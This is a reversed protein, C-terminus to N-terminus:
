NNKHRQFKLSKRNTFLHCKEGYLYHRRIKLAFMIAALELNHTLYNKEHPKLQRPAYAIVKGDQILICGLDNLLADSYDIFEKEFELQTLILGETYM